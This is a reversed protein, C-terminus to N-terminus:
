NDTKNAKIFCSRANDYEGLKSLLCGKKFNGMIHNSDEKLINQCLAVGRVYEGSHYYCTAM